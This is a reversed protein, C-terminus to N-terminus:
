KAGVMEGTDLDLYRRNLPDAPHRYGSQFYNPLGRVSVEGAEPFKGEALDARVLFANSGALETHVLRYEKREGLAQIAGLSAGMYETGDWSAGSQKPQVLRRRPDLASNYEIVVIRPRYAEIADWIWYDQGDVDISVVDPEAPVQGSAFLEEINESTIRAHITRVDDRPEYKRELLRYFEDDAEMFLGQWGAVDALYVCNGERGSEVGFEVFFRSSVGIRGLIEAIVGDEGNQSYARLEYSALALPEPPEASRTGIAGHRRGLEAIALFLGRDSQLTMTRRVEDLSQAQSEVARRLHRSGRLEALLQAQEVAAGTALNRIHAELAASLGVNVKRQFDSYPRLARLLVRRAFGRARHSAGGRPVRPPGQSIRTQVEALEVPRTYARARGLPARGTARISELRRGLIEGAASPSHTRRIDSAAREGLARAAIPDAVVQAMLTAAHDLDPCAWTAEASVGGRAPHAAVVGYDVLLSNEATMFDANGSFATAIVPKGLWMAEAMSLGFAEARHLSVYCDGVATLATSQARTMPGEIVQIAPHEATAAWLAATAEDDRTPSTGAIVLHVADDPTFARTFAAVAAGAHDASSVFLFKGGPLGLDARSRPVLPPPDVPIAVTHVPVPAAAELLGAAHASPAWVEQVHHLAESLVEPDPALDCFWLGISYRGAFFEAGAQRAFEPLAEASTSLVNVLFPARDPPLTAYPEGEEAFSATPDHVPASPIGRADFTFVMRRAAEGLEDGAGFPGVVNVGWPGERLPATPRGPAPAVPTGPVRPGRSPTGNVAGGVKALLPVEESGVNEAWVILGERDAGAVDPFAVQLDGREEYIRALVRNVGLQADPAEERLWEEFLRAGAPTFPSPAARASLEQEDDYEECFTRVLEDIRTGDGLAVYSYPWKRSVAHGEGMVKAAYEALVRELVPDAAADIRNQHRSLTLPHAPDFGSFHFFALPRGDVLYREGDHELSRSHLNWYAVNYEPDRVIAFDELFGPVLDFWRQDVFYGWAPDVRCDRRLRDSWWDLLDEVEPRPGLSVYGLNYVGAIMIDVQSPKHGDPPLPQSSHPILVVGHDAALEDLRRLSSHVEIDPDLYTVPSGTEGMLHRLLWPKVATSLELVSYRLAMYEFPECGVDSPTLVEFPERAPDIYGAFDDIVLTWLRSEPNHEALSRALVRAQALYNKAIITCVEV